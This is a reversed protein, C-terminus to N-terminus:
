AKMAAFWSFPSPESPVAVNGSAARAPTALSESAILSITEKPAGGANGLAERAAPCSGRVGAKAERSFGAAGLPDVPISDNSVPYLGTGAGRSGCGPNENRRGHIDV